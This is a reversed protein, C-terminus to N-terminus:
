ELAQQGPKTSSSHQWCLEIRCADCLWHNELHLPHSALYILVQAPGLSSCVCPLYCVQSISPDARTARDLVAKHCCSKLQKEDWAAPVNLLRLRTSSIFFNPSKLKLNAEKVAHIRKRQDRESLQNWLDTGNEIRGERAQVYLGLHLRKHSSRQRVTKARSFCLCEVYRKHNVTAVGYM